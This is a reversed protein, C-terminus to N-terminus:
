WSGILHRSSEADLVAGELPHVVLETLEPEVLSDRRVERRERRKKSMKKWSHPLSVVEYNSKRMEEWLISGKQGTGYGKIKRELDFRQFM